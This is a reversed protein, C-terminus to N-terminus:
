EDRGGEYAKLIGAVREWNQVSPETAHHAVKIEALAAEAREARMTELSKAKVKREHGGESDDSFPKGTLVDFEAQSERVKTLDIDLDKAIEHIGKQNTMANSRTPEGMNIEDLHLGCHVCKLTETSLYHQCTPGFCDSGM